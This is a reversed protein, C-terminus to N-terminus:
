KALKALTDAYEDLAWGLSARVREKHARRAKEDDQPARVEGRRPAAPTKASEHTPRVSMTGM